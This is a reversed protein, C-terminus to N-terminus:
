ANLEADLEAIQEDLEVEASTPEDLAPNDSSFITRGLSASADSRRRAADAAAMEALVRDGRIVCRGNDVDVDGRIDEAIQAAAASIEEATWSGLEADAIAREDGPIVIPRKRNFLLRYIGLRMNQRAYDKKGRLDRLWRRLGLGLFVTSYLGPFVVLGFTALAGSLGLTPMLTTYTVGALILNFLNLWPVVGASSSRLKHLRERITWTYSLRAEQKKVLANLNDQADESVSTLLDPFRYIAVADKTIDLEGDYTAVLRTGVADADDYSVGLLAMIDANTIIGKKARIFTLLEKEEELPTREIGDSGFLHYWTRDILTPKSPDEKTAFQPRADLRYLDEGRYIRQDVVYVARRRSRWRWTDFWHWFMMHRFLSGGFSPGSRRRDSNQSSAATIAAIILCVYVITYVVVMTVTWAKFFGVFFSKMAARRRRWKDAKVVDQRAVLAPDFRYVLDGDETVDLSSEYERVLINLHRETEAPPLGSRAVMESITFPASANKLQELLALRASDDSVTAIETM